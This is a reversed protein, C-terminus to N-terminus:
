EEYFRFRAFLTQEEPTRSANLSHELSAIAEALCRLLDRRQDATEFEFFIERGRATLRRAPITTDAM